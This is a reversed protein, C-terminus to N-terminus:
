RGKKTDNVITLNILETKTKLGKAGLDRYLFRWLGISGALICANHPYNICPCASIEAKPTDPM